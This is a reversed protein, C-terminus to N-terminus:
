IDDIDDGYLTAPSQSAAAAAAPAAPEATPEVAEVAKAGLFGRLWDDAEPGLAIPCEHIELGRGYSEYGSEWYKTQKPLKQDLCSPEGTNIAAVRAAIAATWEADTPDSTPPAVHGNDKHPSANGPPKAAPKAPKAAPTASAEAPEKKKRTRKPKAETSQDATAAPPTGEQTQSAEPQGDAPTALFNGVQEAPQTGANSTDSAPILNKAEWASLWGKFTDIIIEAKAKGIGRPWKAAGSATEDIWCKMDGATAIEVDALKSVIAAPLGLDDLPASKWADSDAPSAAAPPVEGEAAGAVTPVASREGNATADGMPLRPQYQEDNRLHMLEASLWEFEEELVKLRSKHREVEGRTAAIELCVETYESTVQAIQFRRTAHSTVIPEPPPDVKAVFPPTELPGAPVSDPTTGTPNNTDLPPDDSASEAAAAPQEAEAEPEAEGQDILDAADVADQGAEADPIFTTQGPLSDPASPMELTLSM